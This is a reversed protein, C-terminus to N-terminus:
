AKYSKEAREKLAALDEGKELSWKKGKSDVYDAKDDGPTGAGPLAEKPKKPKFGAERGKPVFSNTGKDFPTGAPIKYQESLRKKADKPDEGKRAFLRGPGPSGDKKLFRPKVAKEKKDAM